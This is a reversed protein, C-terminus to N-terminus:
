MKLSKAAGRLFYIVLSKILNHLYELVLQKKSVVDNNYFAELVKQPFVNGDFISKYGLCYDKKTRVKKLNHLQLTELICKNNKSFM